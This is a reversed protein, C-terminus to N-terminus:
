DREIDQNIESLKLIFNAEYGELNDKVYKKTSNTKNRFTNLKKNQIKVPM